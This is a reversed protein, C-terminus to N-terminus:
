SAAASNHHSSQGGGVRFSGCTITLLNWTTKGIPLLDGYPKWVGVAVVQPSWNDTQMLGTQPRTRIAAVHLATFAPPGLLGHRPMCDMMWQLLTLNCTTLRYM